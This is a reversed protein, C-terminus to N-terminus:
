DIRTLGRAIVYRTLGAVSHIKLKKMINERHSEVTRVGLRLEDAIRRNTYGEAIFGVVERERETLEADAPSVGHDTWHVSDRGSGEQPFFLDGQHVARIAKVIDESPCNKVLYGAAGIRLAEIVYERNDYVTLMTIRMHPNQALMMRAAEFGSRQLLRIDLIVVDPNLQSAMSVATNGDEAEGVIEIDRRRSMLSRIGNRVIPHDDVLLVQITPEASAETAM